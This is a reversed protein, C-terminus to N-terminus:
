TIGNSEGSDASAVSRQTERVHNVVWELHERCKQAAYMRFGYEEMTEGDFKQTQRLNDISDNIDKEIIKWGPHDALETIARDQAMSDMPPELFNQDDVFSHNIPIATEM